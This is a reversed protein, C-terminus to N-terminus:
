MVFIRRQSNEKLKVWDSTGGSHHAFFLYIIDLEVLFSVYCKRRFGWECIILGKPFESFVRCCGFVLWTTGVM